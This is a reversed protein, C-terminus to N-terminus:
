AVVDIPIEEGKELIHLRSQLHEVTAEEVLTKQGDQMVYLKYAVTIYKNEM